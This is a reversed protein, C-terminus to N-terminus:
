GAMDGWCFPIGQVIRCRLQYIVKASHHTPKHKRGLQWCSHVNISQALAQYPFNSHVNPGRRMSLWSLLTNCVESLITNTKTQNTSVWPLPTCGDGPTPKKTRHQDMVLAGSRTQGWQHKGGELGLAPCPLARRADLLRVVYFFTGVGEGPQM